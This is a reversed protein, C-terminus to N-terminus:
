RSRFDLRAAAAGRYRPMAGSLICDPGYNEYFPEFIIVEDGPDVAALMAAIMAETAGCSVTVEDAPTSSADGRRRNSAPSRRACLRAGWTTAYQNYGDRFASSPRRSSARTPTSTRSVRRSTSQESQPGNLALNQRTMERIVSEAFSEAKLSLRAATKLTRPDARELRLDTSSCSFCRAPRELRREWWGCVKCTWRTKAFFDLM